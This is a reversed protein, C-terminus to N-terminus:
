RRTFSSSVRMGPTPLAWIKPAPSYLMRTQSSGSRRADLCSVVVSTMRAMRSCFTCTAAPTSPAGGRGDVGGELERDVRAAPQGALVLEGVDDDTRCGVTLDGTHTIDSTDLETRARIREAAQEVVLRRHGDADELPGPVLASSAEVWTRWVISRSL